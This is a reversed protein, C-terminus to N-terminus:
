VERWNTVIDVTKGNVTIFPYSDDERKFFVWQEQDEGYHSYGNTIFLEIRVGNDLWIMVDHVASVQVSEVVGGVIQSKYKAVFHWEDNNAETAGDWNQYDATTVLIDNEGVIRTFCQAHLEYDGFSFTMMECALNLDDLCTGEIARLYENLGNGKDM